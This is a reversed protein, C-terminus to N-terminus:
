ALRLLRQDAALHQLVELRPLAAPPGDAQIQVTLGATRTELYVFGRGGNAASAGSLRDTRRPQQVRVILEIRGVRGVVQRYWLTPAHVGDDAVVTSLARLELGPFAALLATRTADSITPVTTCAIPRTGCSGPSTTVTAPIGPRVVFRTSTGGMSISFTGNALTGPLVDPRPFEIAVGTGFTRAPSPTRAPDPAAPSSRHPPDGLVGVLVASAAVAAGAVALASRHRRLWTPRAGRYADPLEEFDDGDDSGVIFEVDPPDM